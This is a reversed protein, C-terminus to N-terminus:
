QANSIGEIWEREAARSKGAREGIRELRQMTPMTRQPKPQKRHKWAYWLVILAALILGGMIADIVFNADM